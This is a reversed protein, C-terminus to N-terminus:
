FTAPIEFPINESIPTWALGAGTEAIAASIRGQRKMAADALAILKENPRAIPSARRLADVILREETRPNHLCAAIIAIAPSRGIGARCHFLMPGTRKWQGLFVLLDDIQRASPPILGETPVHVDHFQLRLHRGLYLPGLEPFAIGPDLVSVIREPRRTAVVNM